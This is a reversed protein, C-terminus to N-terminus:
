SVYVFSKFSLVEKGAPFKGLDDDYGLHPFFIGGEEIVVPWDTKKISNRIDCLIGYEKSEALENICLFCDYKFLKSKTRCVACHLLYNSYDIENGLAEVL